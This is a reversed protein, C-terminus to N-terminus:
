LLSRAQEEALRKSRDLATQMFGKYQLPILLKLVLAAALSRGFFAYQWEVRTHDEQIERFWIEGRADAVLHRFLNTLECLRYQVVQPPECSTVQERATTGDSLRLRRSSGIVHMPGTQDEVGVVGPILGYAPMIKALDVSLFWYFFWERPVAIEASVKTSVSDV